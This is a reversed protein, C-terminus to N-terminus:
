NELIIALHALGCFKKDADPCKHTWHALEKGLRKRTFFAKCDRIKEPRCLDADLSLVENQPGGKEPGDPQEKEEPPKTEDPLSPFSADSDGDNNPAARMQLLAPPLQSQSIYSLTDSLGVSSGSALSNVDSSPCNTTAGKEWYYSKKCKDLKTYFNSEGEVFSSYMARKRSNKRVSWLQKWFKFGTDLLTGVIKAPMQELVLEYPETAEKM